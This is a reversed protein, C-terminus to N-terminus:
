FEPKANEGREYTKVYGYAKLKKTKGTPEWGAKKLIAAIQYSDNRTPKTAPQRLCEHWIEMVSVAERPEAAAEAGNGGAGFDARLSWFEDREEATYGEFGAPVPTDLYALVLGERPDTEMAHRQAEQAAREVDGELYLAEGAAELAAAEAWVQAVAAADLRRHDLRATVRVPWFRRNGTADRLYGDLNNVTGVVICRRRYGRARHKFAARYNDEATSLFSKLREISAKAMGDLEAVEVIWRGQLKEAAVKPLKVDELSLADTFWEGALKSFLTSKGLGQAGELILMYDFKCGPERARRVAACLTKRTVARVYATDEAGMLDVLLRDVRPVGDWGPLADLYEGLPDYPAADAFHSVADDVKAKNVIGYRTELYIRLNADDGDTWLARGKPVERWPLREAVVWVADSEADRRLRGALGPDRALVLGINGASSLVAGTRPDKELDKKWSDDAELPEALFDDHASDAAARALELSVGELGAAWERMAKSSPLSAVPTDPKAEADLEGFRHIRVLDYANCLQGGAPDTAHNSYLWLGEYAVAGGYSSGGTYTWRGEGCPEYVDALFGEIAGEISHARCFAGVTGAKGRPDPAKDARSRAGCGPLPWCSADRWDPYLALWEDPDLPDGGCEVLEYPADMSRSPAYMLRSPQYTTADFREAGLTEALKLALPVYEDASVERALPVVLRHKPSAATSSHTPYMLAKAGVLMLYDGWLGDDSSDADLVVMSRRAVSGQRRRGGELYGAVYCPGDKAADREAKAMAAYEAATEPTRRPERMWAAFEDWAMRKNRWAKARRGQATAVAYDKPM